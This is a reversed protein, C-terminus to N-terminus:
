NTGEVCSEVHATTKEITLGTLNKRCIPCEVKQYLVGSDTARKKQAPKQQQEKPRKAIGFDMESEESKGKSIVRTKSHDPCYWDGEPIRSLPPNLCYIHYGKECGDKDCLLIKDDDVGLGCYCCAVSDLVEHTPCLWNEPVEKLPVDFCYTHYAVNCYPFNGCKVLNDEGGHIGCSKCFARSYVIYKEGNVEKVTEYKRKEEESSFFDNEEVDEDGIGFISDFESDSDRGKEKDDGVLSIVKRKKALRNKKVNKEPVSDSSTKRPRGPKKKPQVLDIVKGESKKSIILDDSSKATEKSKLKKNIILDESSKASEKSKLPSKSVDIAKATNSKASEKSKLPSSKDIVKSKELSKTVDLEKTPTKSEVNKATSLSNLKESKVNDSSKKSKPDNFKPEDKKKHVGFRRREVNFDM